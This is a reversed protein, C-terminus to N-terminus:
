VSPKTPQPDLVEAKRKKSADDEEPPAPPTYELLCRMVLDIDVRHGAFEAAPPLQSLFGVISQPLVTSSQNKHPATTSGLPLPATAQSLDWQTMKSTNPMTFRGKTPRHHQTTQGGM